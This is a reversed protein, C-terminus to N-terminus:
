IEYRVCKLHIQHGISDLRLRFTWNGNTLIPFVSMQITQGTSDNMVSSTWIHFSRPMEYEIDDLRLPYRVTSWSSASIPTFSIPDPIMMDCNLQEPRLAGCSFLPVFLQVSTTDSRSICAWLSDVRFAVFDEGELRVLGHRPLSVLSTVTQVTSNCQISVFAALLLIQRGHYMNASNQL